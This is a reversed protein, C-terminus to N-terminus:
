KAGVIGGFQYIPLMISILLVGVILAMFVILVPEMISTLNKVFNDVEEEYYNALNGLMADMEGTQEGVNIMQSVIPPYLNKQVRMIESIQKGGKVNDALALLSDEYIANGTAKATIRLAEIISVGSAILGELTRTLRSLYLSKLFPKIVPINLKMQDYLKRVSRNKKILRKFGVYGFGIIIALIVAIVPFNNTFDMVLRTMLPLQSHFSAYLSAMQPMVYISMVVLVGAVVVIIFAPYILAGRLKKKLKYSSEVNNAARNLAKDLTGSTEGSEILTLDIESFTDPYDSLANSLSTGGEVDNSIQSILDKLKRGSTQEALVHLAQAIPLGANITTALQRMFFTKDKTSLKRTFSFGKTEVRKIKIPFLERSTLVKAASFETEASIVGAQVEGDKTKAKYDFDIM